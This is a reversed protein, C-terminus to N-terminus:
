LIAKYKNNLGLIKTIEKYYEVYIRKDLDVPLTEIKVLKYATVEMRESLEKSSIRLIM